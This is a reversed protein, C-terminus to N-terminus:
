KSGNDECVRFGIKSTCKDNDNKIESYKLIFQVSSHNMMICCSDGDGDKCNFYVLLPEEYGVETVVYKTGDVSIILSVQQGKPVDNKIKNVHARLNDVFIKAPCNQPTAFDNPTLADSNLANHTNLGKIGYSSNLANHEKSIKELISNLERM